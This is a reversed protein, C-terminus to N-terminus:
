SGPRHQPAASSQSTPSAPVDASAAFGGGLRNRFRMDRVTATAGAASPTVDWFPFRAWVLFGAVPPAGRAAAVPGAADNKYVVEDSLELGAPWATFRGTRYHDGADIIVERTWPVVPVPGVMLARAPRGSRAEWAGAVFAKAERAVTLMGVVYCAAVVLAVLAPRPRRTRRALWVGIGLSAWLWPDVIFVADGYFWRWDFPALLRVGYNNLYDLFVHSYLGVYALVLLWFPRCRDRQRSGPSERRRRWRDLAM